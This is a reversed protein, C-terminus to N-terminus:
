SHTFNLEFRLLEGILELYRCDETADQMSTLVFVTIYHDNFKVSLTSHFDEWVFNTKKTM